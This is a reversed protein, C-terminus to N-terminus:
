KRYIAAGRIAVEGEDTFMVISCCHQVSRRLHTSSTVGAQSQLRLACGIPLMGCLLEFLNFRSWSNKCESLSYHEECGAGRAHKTLYILKVQLFRLSRAPLWTLTSTIPSGDKGSLRVIFRIFDSISWCIMFAITDYQYWRSFGWIFSKPACYHYIRTFCIWNWCIDFQTQRWTWRM